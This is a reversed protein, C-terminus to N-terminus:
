STNLPRVWINAPSYWAVSKDQPPNMAGSSSSIKAHHKHVQLNGLLLMDWAHHQNQVTLTHGYAKVYNSGPWSCTVTYTSFDLDKFAWQVKRERKRKKKWSKYDGVTDQLCTRQFLGINQVALRLCTLVCWSYHVSSKSSPYLQVQSAWRNEYTRSTLLCDPSKVAAWDKQCPPGSCASVWNTIETLTFLAM